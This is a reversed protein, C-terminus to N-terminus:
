GKQFIRRHELAPHLRMGLIDGHHVPLRVIGALPADLMWAWLCRLVGAHTVTLLRGHATAERCRAEAWAAVRAYLERFSEGGPPRAEVYDTMWRDFAPGELARWPRGEWDGFHYELLRTDEHLPAPGALTEALRRCRSLPSTWVADYGGPLRAAFDAVGAAFAAEDLPVDERGYCRGAAGAVPTHRILYVEM